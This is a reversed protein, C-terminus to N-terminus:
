RKLNKVQDNVSRSSCAYTLTADKGVLEGNSDVGVLNMCFTSFGLAVVKLGVPSLQELIDDVCTDIVDFLFSSSKKKNSSETDDEAVLAIRGAVVSRRERSSRAVVDQNNNYAFCRVSSSGIDLALVVGENTSSNNMM